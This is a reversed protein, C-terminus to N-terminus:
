NYLKRTILCRAHLSQHWMKLPKMLMKQYLKRTVLYCHEDLDSFIKDSSVGSANRINEQEHGANMTDRRIKRGFRLNGQYEEDMELNHCFCPLALDVIEKGVPDYKSSNELQFMYSEFAGVKVVLFRQHSWSGISMHAIAKQARFPLMSNCTNRQNRGKNTVYNENQFAFLIARGPGYIKDDRVRVFYIIKFNKNMSHFFVLGLGFLSQTMMMMEKWGYDSNNLFGVCI